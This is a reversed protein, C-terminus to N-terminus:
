ADQRKRQRYTQQRVNRECRVSCYKRRHIKLFLAGCRPCPIECTVLEERLWRATAASVGLILLRQILLCKENTSGAKIETAM